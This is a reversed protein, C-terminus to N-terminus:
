INERSPQVHLGRLPFSMGSAHVKVMPGITFRVDAGEGHQGRMENEKTDSPLLM